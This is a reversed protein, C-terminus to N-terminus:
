FAAYNQDLTGIKTWYLCEIFITRNTSPLQTPWRHCHHWHGQSRSKSRSALFLKESRKAATVYICRRFNLWKCYKLRLDKDWWNHSTYAKHKDKWVQDKSRVSKVFISISQSYWFSIVCQSSWLIRGPMKERNCSTCTSYVLQQM